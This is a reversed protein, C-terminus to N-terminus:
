GEDETEGGAAEKSTFFLGEFAKAAEEASHYSPPNPDTAAKKTVFGPGDDKNIISMFAAHEDDYADGDDYDDWDDDSSTTSYRTPTYGGSRYKGLGHVRDYEDSAQVWDGHTIKENPSLTAASYSGALYTWAHVTQMEGNSDPYQVERLLRRYHSHSYSDSDFGELSDLRSRSWDGNDNDELWVIDGRTIDEPDGELAYPFGQGAGYVAVGQVSAEENRDAIAGNMLRDNGQGNRLTGYVFVPLRQALYNEFGLKRLARATNKDCPYAAPDPQFAPDPSEVDEYRDPDRRWQRFKAAMRTPGIRQQHAAEIFAAELNAERIRSETLINKSAEWTPGDPIEGKEIDGITTELRRTLREKQRDDLDPDTSIDRITRNIHAVAEEAPPPEADAHERKLAHFISSIQGDDLETLYKTHLNAAIGCNTSHCSM